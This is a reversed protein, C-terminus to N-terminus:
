RCSMVTTVLFLSLVTIILVCCIFLFSTCHQSTFSQQIANAYQTYNRFVDTLSLQTNNAFGSVIQEATNVPSVDYDDTNNLRANCCVMMMMMM